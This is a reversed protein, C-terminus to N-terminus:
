ENVEYCCRGSQWLITPGADRYRELFRTGTLCFLDDWSGVFFLM